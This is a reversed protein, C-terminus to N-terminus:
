AGSLGAKWCSTSNATWSPSGIGAGGGIMPGCVSRADGAGIACGAAFVCVPQSRPSGGSKKLPSRVLDSVNLLCNLIYL